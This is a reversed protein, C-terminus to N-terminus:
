TVIIRKETIIQDIPIDWKEHHINDLQQLEHALGILQPKKFVKRSSLYALSRDYFGGGMGLRNGKKDFAVLPLFLVDLQHARQWQRPRCVPENIGFRNIKMESDPKYPAFYLQNNLPSLIPLFVQKGMNWAHKIIFSPDIEGDNALYFAIKNSYRFTNLRSLQNSLALAHDHQERGSLARRQSRILQRNESTTSM